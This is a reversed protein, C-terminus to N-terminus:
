LDNETFELFPQTPFDLCIWLKQFVSAGAVTGRKFDSLDGNKGM